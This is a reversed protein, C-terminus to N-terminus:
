LKAQPSSVSSLADTVLKAVSQACGWHVTWGSGGHGYNHFVKTHPAYKGYSPLRDFSPDLELRIQARGPRLGARKRVVKGQKLEPVVKAARTLITHEEEESVTTDWENPLYTGGVFCADERPLIYTLGEPNDDFMFIKNKLKDKVDQPLELTLLCGRVPHVAPDQLLKRAGLGTCNVIADAHYRRAADEISRIDEDLIFKVRGTSYLEKRLRQLHLGTTVLPLFPLVVCDVVNSPVFPLTSVSIKKAPTKLVHKWTDRDAAIESTAEYSMCDVLAVHYANSEVPLNSKLAPNLPLKAEKNLYTLWELTEGCWRAFEVHDAQYPLWM